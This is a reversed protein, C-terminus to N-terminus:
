ECTMLTQIDFPLNDQMPLPTVQRLFKNLETLLEEKNEMKGTLLLQDKEQNFGLQQWVYLIYYIQDSTQKCNFTNVLLLKGKDFAFVTMQHAQFYAYLRRQNSERSKQTFYEILPCVCAFIRANPFQEGLLQHAHKDMGFLLAINSKGLINCLITENEREPFNHYFLAETEEDEFLDFPVSTFRPTDILINIQGYPHKLEEKAQLMKKLNATMSCSVNVPYEAYFFDDNWSSRHVSFSFGDASLRISLTYQESKSFDINTM